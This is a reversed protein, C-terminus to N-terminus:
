PQSEDLVFVRTQADPAVTTSADQRSRTPSGCGYLLLLATAAATVGSTVNRLELPRRNAM